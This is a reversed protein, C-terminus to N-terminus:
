NGKQKNITITVPEAHPVITLVEDGNQKINLRMKFQYYSTVKLLDILTNVICEVRDRQLIVEESIM